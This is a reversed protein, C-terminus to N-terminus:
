ADRAHWLRYGMWVVVGISLTITAIQLFPRTIATWGGSISDPFLVGLLSQIGRWVPHTYLRDPEALMEEITVFGDWYPLFAGVVVAVIAIGDLIWNGFIRRSWGQPKKRDVLRMIGMVGFLPLTIFKIMVSVAVLIIGARLAALGGLVVAALGLTAILVTHPDNH